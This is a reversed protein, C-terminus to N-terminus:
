TFSILSAVSSALLVFILGMVVSSSAQPNNKKWEAIVPISSGLYMYPLYAPSNGRLPYKEMMGGGFRVHYNGMMRSEPVQGILLS